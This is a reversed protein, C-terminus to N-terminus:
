LSQGHCEPMALGGGFEEAVGIAPDLVGGGIIAVGEGPGAEDSGHAALTIAVVVGGHFAEPAGEFPLQDIAPLEGGVLLGAGFDEIVDFAKVIGLAEM